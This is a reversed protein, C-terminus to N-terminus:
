ELVELVDALARLLEKISIWADLGPAELHLEDLDTRQLVLVQQVSDGHIWRLLHIPRPM